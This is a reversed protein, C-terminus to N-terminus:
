STIFCPRDMFVGTCFMQLQVQYFFKHSPNIVLGDSCYKCICRSRVAEELSIGNSFIRKIEVLGGDVEGDPSAELFPHSQSIVFGSDMAKCCLKEEYMKLISAEDELGQTMCKSAYPNNYNLIDRIAKTPSTIPKLLARKCQSATIRIRRHEFWEQCKSQLKKTQKIKDREQDTVILKDKIRRARDQIDYLSVPHVKIPSIIEPKEQQAKESSLLTFFGSNSKVNKILELLEMNAQQVNNTRQALEAKTADSHASGDKAMGKRCSLWQKLRDKTIQRPCDGCLLQAKEEGFSNIHFM